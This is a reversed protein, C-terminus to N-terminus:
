ARREGGLRKLYSGFWAVKVQDSFRLKFTMNETVGLERWRATEFYEGTKGIEVTYSNSYTRGDDKSLSLALKPNSGQGSPLGVGSEVGVELANYRLRDGEQYLHKYIRERVIDDGNDSYIDMDMTYLNGNVRDGLIQKGFAFVCCQGRHPEFDGDLNNFAREHWLQNTVNYVISTELGGGTLVYFTFGKEQYVWSVIDEPNPTAQILIDIAPTSIPKPNISTTEYVTGRGYADQGLWFVSRGIAQASHPALIGIDFDGNSVKEFPFDSAGTNSFLETTNEGFCWLEGIGNFVRLIKDPSSEASKFDLANWSTGDGLASIFYKGTGVENVIFYNDITTITGSTPLDVDTVEAFVDSSYTFIYVTVGDCIAMQTENESITINGSSQNLSGRNTGTGASDIEFLINASVFFTRGNKKSKFGNRIAGVGITSLLTLGPTGYLAAIEKGDRDFVPFLNVTREANYPISWAQYSDGVLEIKM